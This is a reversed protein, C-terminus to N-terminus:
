IVQREQAAGPFSLFVPMNFYSFFTRKLCEKGPTKCAICLIIWLNQPYFDKPDNPAFVCFALALM